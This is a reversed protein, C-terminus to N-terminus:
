SWLLWAARWSYPQKDSIALTIAEEFYEPHASLYSIL